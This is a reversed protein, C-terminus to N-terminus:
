NNLQSIFYSLDARALRLAAYDKSEKLEDIAQKTLEIEQDLKIKDM